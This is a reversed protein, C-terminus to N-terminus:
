FRLILFFIIISALIQSIANIFIAGALPGIFSGPVASLYPYLINHVFSRPGVYGDTVVTYPFVFNTVAEGGGVLTEIDALYWFPDDGRIGNTAGFAVLLAYAAIGSILIWVHGSIKAAALFERWPRETTM